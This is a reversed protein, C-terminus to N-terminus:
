WSNIANALSINVENMQNLDMLCKAMGIHVMPQNPELDLLRRYSDIAEAPKSHERLLKARRRHSSILLSKRQDTIAELQIPIPQPKEGAKRARRREEEEERM